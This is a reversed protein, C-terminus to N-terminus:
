GHTDDHNVTRPIDAEVILRVQLPLWGFPM